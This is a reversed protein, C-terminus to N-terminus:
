PRHQRRRPVVPSAQAPAVPQSSGVPESTGVERIGYALRKINLLHKPSINDSTINWWVRRLWADDAPILGMM